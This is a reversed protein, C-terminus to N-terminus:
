DNKVLKRRVILYVISGAFVFIVGLGCIFQAFGDSLNISAGVWALLLFLFGVSVLEKAESAIKQYEFSTKL